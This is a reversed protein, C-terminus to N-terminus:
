AKRVAEKALEFIKRAEAQVDADSLGEYAEAPLSMVLHAEDDCSWEMSGHEIRPMKTWHFKAVVFRGDPGTYGQEDIRAAVDPHQGRLVNELHEWRQKM